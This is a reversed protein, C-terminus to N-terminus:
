QMIVKRCGYPAKNERKGVRGYYHDITYKYDKDFKELSMKRTFEQKWWRLADEYALGLGKLFLGLQLRGWHKIHSETRVKGYLRKMCPPFSAQAYQDLNQLNIMTSDLKNSNYDRSKSPDRLVQLFEHLSYNETQQTSGSLSRETYSVSQALIARFHEV